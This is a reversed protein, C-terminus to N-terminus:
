APILPSFGATESNEKSEMIISDCYENWTESTMLCVHITCSSNGFKKHFAGVFHINKKESIRKQLYETGMNNFVGNFRYEVAVAVLDEYPRYYNRATTIILREIGPKPAYSPQLSMIPYLIVDDNKGLKSIEEFLGFNKEKCDLPELPKRAEYFAVRCESQRLTVTVYYQNHSIMSEGLISKM